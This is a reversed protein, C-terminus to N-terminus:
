KRNCRDEEFPKIQPEPNDILRTDPSTMYQLSVSTHETQERKKASISIMLRSENRSALIDLGERDVIAHRPYQDNLFLYRM